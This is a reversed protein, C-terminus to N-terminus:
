TGAFESPDILEDRADEEERMKKWRAHLDPLTITEAVKGGCSPCETASAPIM